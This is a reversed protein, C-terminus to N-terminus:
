MFCGEFMGTNGWTLFFFFIKRHFQQWLPPYHCSSGLAAKLQQGVLGRETTSLVTSGEDESFVGRWQGEFCMKNSTRRSGRIEWEWNIHHGKRLRWSLIKMVKPVSILIEEVDRIRFTKRLKLDVKGADHSHRLLVKLSLVVLVLLVTKGAIITTARSYYKLQHSVNYWKDWSFVDCSNEVEKKIEIKYYGSSVMVDQRRRLTWIM